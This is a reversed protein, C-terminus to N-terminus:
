ASLRTRIDTVTAQLGEQERTQGVIADLKKAVENLYDATQSVKELGEKEGESILLGEAPIIGPFLKLMENILILMGTLQGYLALGWERTVHGADLDQNMKAAIQSAYIATLEVHLTRREEELGNFLSPEPSPSAQAKKRAEEEMLEYLSVDLANALKRLTAPSAERAGREIQNVTSPDLGARAALRAQSLEKETRLRKLREM